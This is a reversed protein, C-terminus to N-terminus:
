LLTRWLAESDIRKGIRSFGRESSASHCRSAGLAKNPLISAQKFLLICLAKHHSVHGTRLPSVSLKAVAWGKACNRWIKSCYTANAKPLHRVWYVTSLKGPACRIVLHTTLALWIHLNKPVKRKRNSIFTKNLDKIKNFSKGQYIFPHSNGSDRTNLKFLTQPLASKFVDNTLCPPTWHPWM